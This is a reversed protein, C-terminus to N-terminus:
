KIKKDSSNKIHRGSPPTPPPTTQNHRVHRSSSDSLYYFQFVACGEPPTRTHTFVIRQTHTHPCIHKYLLYNEGKRCIEGTSYSTKILYFSAKKPVSDCMQCLQMTQKGGKFEGGLMGRGEEERRLHGPPLAVRDRRCSAAATSRARRSGPSHPRGSPSPSWVHPAWRAPPSRPWSCLRGWLAATGLPWWSPSLPPVPSGPTLFDRPRPISPLVPPSPFSLYAFLRIRPPRSDIGSAPVGPFDKHPLDLGRNAPYCSAPPM